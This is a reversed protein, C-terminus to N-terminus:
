YGIILAKKSWTDSDIQEIMFKVLNGRSITTSLGDKVVSAKVIKSSNQNTIRGPRILTYDLSSRLIFAEGKNKDNFMNRLLTAQLINLLLTNEKHSTGAGWASLAILREKHESEMAAVLNQMFIEQVNTKRLTRSGFTSMILDQGQLAIKIQNQDGISGTFISIKDKYKRLKEPSRVYVSLKHDSKLLERLLVTGTKGTSGFIIINM